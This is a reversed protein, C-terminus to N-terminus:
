IIFSKYILYANRKEHQCSAKLFLISTNYFSCIYIPFTFLINLMFGQSIATYFLSFPIQSILAFILLRIFYKQKNQTHTYGQALQFCFIPFALRGIYNFFSFGNFVIYGAHDFLMSICAIIKLVFTSM